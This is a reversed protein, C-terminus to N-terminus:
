SRRFIDVLDIPGVLDLPIYALRAYVREGLIEGAAFPNVPITRYGRRQLYRMVRHSPREPRPSAGVVAITRTQTLLDRLFPDPYNRHDMPATKAREKASAFHIM